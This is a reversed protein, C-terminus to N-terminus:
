LSPQLELENDQSQIGDEQVQWQTTKYFGEIKHQSLQCTPSPQNFRPSMKCLYSSVQSM